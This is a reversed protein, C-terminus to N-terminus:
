SRRAGAAALQDTASAQRYQQPTLGHEARFIRHFHTISKFGCREAVGAIAQDSGSLLARAQEMQHRRVWAHPACGFHRHFHMEFTRRSITLGRLAEKISIGSAAGDKLRRCACATQADPVGLIGINHNAVMGAPQIEILTGAPVAEGGLQRALCRAAERGVMEGNIDVSIYPDPLGLLLPEVDAGIVAVQEPIRLGLQHCVHFISRAWLDNVAVITLPHRCQGLWTGIAQRRSIPTTANACLSRPMATIPLAPCIEALHGRLAQERVQWFPLDTGMLVLQKRRRDRCHEAILRGIAADDCTVTPLLGPVACRVLNVAPKRLRACARAEDATFACAVLGDFSALEDPYTFDNLNRFYLHWDLELAAHALLGRIADQEYRCYSPLCVAIAPMVTYSTKIHGQAMQRQSARPSRIM